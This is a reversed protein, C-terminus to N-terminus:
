KDKQKASVNGRRVWVRVKLLQMAVVVVHSCGNAAGM